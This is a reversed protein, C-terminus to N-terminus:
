CLVHIPTPARATASRVRELAQTNIVIYILTNLHRVSAETRVKPRESGLAKAQANIREASTRQRYLAKYAPADRDLLVRRLGGDETNIDKVCGPGKTFQEHACTQATPHPYLM